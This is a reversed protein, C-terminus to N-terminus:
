GAEPEPEAVPAAKAPLCKPQVGMAAAVELHAPSGYLGQAWTVDMEQVTLSGTAIAKTAARAALSRLLGSRSLGAVKAALDILEVEKASMRIDVRTSASRVLTRDAIPAPGFAHPRDEQSVREVQPGAKAKRKAPKGPAPEQAKERMAKAM